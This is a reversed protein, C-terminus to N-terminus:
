VGLILVREWKSLPINLSISLQVGGPIYNFFFLQVFREAVPLDLTICVRRKGRRETSVLYFLLYELFIDWSFSSVGLFSCGWLKSPTCSSATARSGVSEAGYVCSINHQCLESSEEWSRVCVVLIANRRLRTHVCVCVDETLSRFFATLHKELM